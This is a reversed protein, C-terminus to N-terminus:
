AASKPTLKKWFPLYCLPLVILSSIVNFLTQARAIQGSPTSALEMSVNTLVHLMPFFLVVGLMNLAIHFWAVMQGYKSSGISAILATGTTGVNAGLMMAVGLDISIAHVSALGMAIAIAAASSNIVATVAAGAIVGWLLSRQSQEVFWTFLGQSQLAPTILQMLDLGMLISSFGAGAMSSYQITRFATSDKFKATSRAIFLLSFTWISASAIFLPLGIANLNLGILETTIVTGINTGLIIGMTQPFTLIGANVFGITIVTITSSSQLFATLGTGVLLGRLPTKTFRQLALKLYPGALQHLALEMIKMGFLFIALGICLPIIIDHLISNVNM